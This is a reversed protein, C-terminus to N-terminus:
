QPRLKKTFAKITPLKTKCNALKLDKDTLRTIKVKAEKLNLVTRVLRLPNSIKKNLSAKQIVPSKLYDEGDIVDDKKNSYSSSPEVTNSMKHELLVSKNKLETTDQGM